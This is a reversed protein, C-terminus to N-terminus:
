ATCRRTLADLDLRLAVVLTGEALREVSGQPLHRQEDSTVALAGAANPAHEDLATVLVPDLPHSVRDGVRWQHLGREVPRVRVPPPHDLRDPAASGSEAGSSTSM